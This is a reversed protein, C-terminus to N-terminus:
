AAIKRPAVEPSQAEMVKTVLEGKRGAREKLKSLNTGREALQALRDSMESREAKKAAIMAELEAIEATAGEIAQAMKGVAEGNKKQRGEVVVRRKLRNMMNPFDNMWAQIDELTEGAIRRAEQVAEVTPRISEARAKQVSDRWMTRKENLLPEVQKWERAVALTNLTGEKTKHAVEVTGRRLKQWAGGLLKSFRGATKEGIERNKERGQKIVEKLSKPAEANM